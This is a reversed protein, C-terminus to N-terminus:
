ANSPTAQKTSLQTIFIAWMKHFQSLKKEFM